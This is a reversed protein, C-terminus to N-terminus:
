KVVEEDFKHKKQIRELYELSKFQTALITCTDKDIREQM